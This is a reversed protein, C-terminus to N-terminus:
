GGLGYYSFGSSSRLLKPKFANAEQLFQERKQKPVVILIREEGSQAIFNELSQSPMTYKSSWSLAATQPASTEPPIIKVAINGSYYVASTSYFEYFGLRHRGYGTIAQALEEESRTDTIVPFLLLSLIAYIAVQCFCLLIVVHRTPQKWVLWWITTMILLTSGILRIFEPGHLYHDAVGIYSVAAVTLPIGVWSAIVRKKDAIMQQHLYDATLLAVPFLIPFTYTIYKTAMLSYFMFYAAIWIVCFLQLPSKHSTVNRCSVFVARLAVPSWPLLALLFVIIYYYFVNDQPHESVTARLYNHVGLFTNLFEPGHTVYMAIYWPLAIAVFITLGTPVNMKSLETWKHQIGLFIVIVLGPLLLGVPGKTLVALALSPYMLWYWRKTGDAGTYGMFFFVLAASNFVFFVMDTVVLKALVIYELSTGLVLAALLAVGQKSIRTLFWYMLVVGLAAFLAPALRAALDSFGLLKFTAATLWYFFVPKDFWVQGYIKPSLWDSSTAMEKATLAYNSEVPDTIPLLHSFLLFFTFSTLFLGLGIHRSRITAFPLTINM